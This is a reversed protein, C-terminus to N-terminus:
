RVNYREPATMVSNANYATPNVQGRVYYDGTSAFRWTTRALGASDITVNRTSVVRWVGSTRKYLYLSVVAAQLEPRAPRATMTFTVSSNRGITKISGHNTPRLSALSGSSPNGPQQERCRPQRYRAFVARYYLNTM